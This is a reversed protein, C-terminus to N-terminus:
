NRETQDIVEVIRYGRSRWFEDDNAAIAASTCAYLSGDDNFIAYRADSSGGLAILEARTM